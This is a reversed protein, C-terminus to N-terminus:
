QPKWGPICYGISEFFENSSFMNTTLVKFRLKKDSSVPEGNEDLEEPALRRLTNLESHTCGGIFCILYEGNPDTTGKQDTEFMEGLNKKVTAFENNVINQIIRVSLPVYGLYAAAAEDGVEQWDPVYLKFQKIFNWWKYLPKDLMGCDCLRMLYPVQQIGHNFSISQIYKPFDPIGGKLLTELCLVRIEERLDSGEELMETALTHLTATGELADAEANMRAKFWKCKNMKTFLIEALNIHDVLTKNELSVKSVNRFNEVSQTFETPKNHLAGTVKNMRENILQSAESHNKKSLSAFLPDHVTSLLQIKNTKENGVNVTGCDIGVFEAILGEYNMQTICPTILDTGRDFLILHISSAENPPPLTQSIAKSLGGVSTISAFTGVKATVDEFAQRVDSVITLDRFVWGKLFANKDNMTFCDRDLPLIDIGLDYVEIDDRHKRGAKLANNTEDPFTKLLSLPANDTDILFAAVTDTIHPQFWFQIIPKEKSADINRLIRKILPIDPPLIMAYQIAQFPFNDEYIHIKEFTNALTKGDIIRSIWTKNEPQLVLRCKKNGCIAAM